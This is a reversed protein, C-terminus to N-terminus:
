AARLCRVGEVTGSLVAPGAAYPILVTSGRGVLVPAGSEAALHGQGATVVLVGYSQSLYPSVRTDVREAV